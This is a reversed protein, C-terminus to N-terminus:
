AVKAPNGLAGMFADLFTTAAQYEGSGEQSAAWEEAFTSPNFGGVTTASSQTATTVTPNRMEAQNLAATFRATEKANAKRGLYKEM